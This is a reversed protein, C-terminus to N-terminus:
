PYSQPELTGPLRARELLQEVACWRVYEAFLPATLAM